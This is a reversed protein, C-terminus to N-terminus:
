SVMPGRALHHPAPDRYTPDDVAQHSASVPLVMGDFAAAFGVGQTKNDKKAAFHGWSTIARPDVLLRVTAQLVASDRGSDNVVQYLYLYRASTDLTRNPSDLGASFMTDFDKVGTGWTDGPPGDKGDLVAFYVTAGFATKVAGVAVPKAAREEATFGPRTYGTYAKLADARASPVALLCAVLLTPILLWAAKAHPRCLTRNM